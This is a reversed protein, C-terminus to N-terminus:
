KFGTYGYKYGYVLEENLKLQMNRIKCIAEYATKGIDNSFGRIMALTKNDINNQNFQSLYSFLGHNSLLIDGNSEISYYEKKNTDDKIYTEEESDSFDFDEENLSNTNDLFKIESIFNEKITTKIKTSDLHLINELQSLPIIPVNEEKYANYLCKSLEKNKINKNLLKVVYKEENEIDCYDKFKRCLHQIIHNRYEINDKWLSDWVYCIHVCKEENLKNSPEKGFMIDCLRISQYKSQNTFEEKHHDELYELIIQKGNNSFVFDCRRTDKLGLPTNIRKEIWLDEINNNDFSLFGAYKKNKKRLETVLQYGFYNQKSIPIKQDDNIKMYCKENNREITCAKADVFFNLLNPHLVYPYAFSENKKCLYLLFKHLDKVNDGSILKQPIKLKSTLKSYNLLNITKQLNM